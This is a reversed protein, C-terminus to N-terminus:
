IRLTNESNMPCQTPELFASRLHQAVYASCLSYLSFLRSSIELSSATKIERRHNGVVTAVRPTCVLDASETADGELVNNQDTSRDAIVHDAEVEPKEYVEQGQAEDLRLTVAPMCLMGEEEPEVYGDRLNYTLDQALDTTFKDAMEPYM